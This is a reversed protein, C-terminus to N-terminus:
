AAVPLLSLTSHGTNNRYLTVNTFRPYARILQARAITPTSLSTGFPVQNAYPNAVQQTLQSGLLMQEATLQNLNIDPVGLRTLKSGLYGAEFSWNEGITKQLSLNWQQAYGSGNNRQM